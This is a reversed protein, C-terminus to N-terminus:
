KPEDRTLLRDTLHLRDYLVCTSMRNQECADHLAKIAAQNKDAHGQLRILFWTTTLMYIIDAIAHVTSPSVTAELTM